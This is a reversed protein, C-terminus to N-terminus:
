YVIIVPRTGTSPYGLLSKADSIVQGYESRNRRKRTVIRVYSGVTQWGEPVIDLSEEATCGGGGEIVPIIHDAEWVEELVSDCGVCKFGQEAAVRRKTLESWAKRKM